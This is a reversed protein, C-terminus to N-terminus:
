ILVELIADRFYPKCLDHGASALHVEDYYLNIDLTTSFLGMVPDSAVDAIADIWPENNTYADRILANCDLRRQEQNADSGRPLITGVIVKFGTHKRSICYNKINTFAQAGTRAPNLYLDNTGEWFICINNTFTSNFMYDIKTFGVTSLGVTGAGSLALNHFDNSTLGAAIVADEVANEPRHAATISNGDIVINHAAGTKHAVHTKGIGLLHRGTIEVSSAPNFVSVGDWVAVNQITSGNLIAITKM